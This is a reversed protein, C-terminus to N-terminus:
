ALVIKVQFKKEKSKKMLFVNNPPNLHLQGVPRMGLGLSAATNLFEVLDLNGSFVTKSSAM